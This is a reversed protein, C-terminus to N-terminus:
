LNLRIGSEDLRSEGFEEMKSLQTISFVPGDKCVQFGDVSCSDCIGIGCKMMRELTFEAKAEKTKLYDFVVKLMKEPGCVYIMDFSEVDMSKLADLPTGKIGSSGDDTVTKLNGESFENAFLLEDATRASVIGYASDNILPRLSAMGSGGGILLTKGATKSFPKGYPGRFFIRSGVSLSTMASSSTGYAKVTIAKPNGTQSLSMPIEGIGPLWVMLFQGPLVDKEWDFTITSVTPTERKNGIIRSNIM